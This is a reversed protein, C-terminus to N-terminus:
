RDGRARRLAEELADAAAARVDPEVGTGEWNTKTYPSISRAYPVRVTFHDDIPKADTPHAGGLTTEGILTARKLNKLSYCLDEAASFTGRSTLVYVPKDLFKKGPVYPLTWAETTANTARSYIDNLHTRGAFLYSAIFEVMAGQGGHNDRLDVILADSDAVFTMAAAATPACIAPDAFGNFKVYGINPQLHELKEFGCDNAAEPQPAAVGPPRVFFSFRVEAHKDHSIEQVDASLMRALDIGYVISRYEGRANRKRLTAAMKKGIKPYVYFRDFAEAARDVIKTRLTADLTVVDVAAGAPIRWTGLETVAVPETTSVRVRGLEEAGRTRPKVRFFITAPDAAYIELLDYGGTEAIWRMVGDLNTARGYTQDFSEVRARDASNFADLWAGLAHGAPTPPIGPSPPDASAPGALVGILAALFLQRPIQWM